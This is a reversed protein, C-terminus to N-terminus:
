SVEVVVHDGEASDVEVLRGLAGNKVLAILQNFDISSLDFNGIKMNQNAAGGTSLVATVLSIPLNVRVHDGEHSEVMVRFVMETLPKRKAEPVVMAVPASERSLLEDVTTNYLDALRPLLMIDPCSADNEWKSVAQPTVGLAEAVGDQTLNNRKRYQAMKEGLTMAIM